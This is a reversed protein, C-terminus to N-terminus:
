GYSRSRLAQLLQDATIPSYAQYASPQYQVMPQQQSSQAILGSGGQQAEPTQQSGKGAVSGFKLLDLMRNQTINDGAGRLNGSVMGPTTEAGGTLSALSM